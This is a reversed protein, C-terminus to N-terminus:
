HSRAYVCVCVCVMLFGIDSTFWRPLIWYLVLYQNVTLLSDTYIAYVCMIIISFLVLTGITPAQVVRVFSYSDSQIIIISTALAIEVDAIIISPFLYRACLRERIWRGHTGRGRGGAESPFPFPFSSSTSITYISSSSSSSSLSSISGKLCGKVAMTTPGLDQPLVRNTKRSSSWASTM